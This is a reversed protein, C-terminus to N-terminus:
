ILKCCKKFKAGSGCDCPDNRGLKSKADTDSLPLVQNTFAPMLIRVGSLDSPPYFPGTIGSQIDDHAQKVAHWLHDLSGMNESSVVSMTSDFDFVLPDDLLASYGVAGRSIVVSTGLHVRGSPSPRNDGFLQRVASEADSSITQSLRKVQKRALQIEKDSQMSERISDPPILWKLEVIDLRGDETDLIAVDVDGVLQGGGDFLDQNTAVAYGHRRFAESLQEALPHKKHPIVTAGYRGPDSVALNRFFCAEWNASEVMFPACLLSTSSPLPCLPRAIIDPHTADPRFVWDALVTSAVRAPVGSHDSVISALESLGFSLLLSLLPFKPSSLNEHQEAELSHRALFGHLATLTQLEIWVQYAEGITYSGCSVERPIISEPTKALVLSKVSDHAQRTTREVPWLISTPGSGAPLGASFWSAEIYTAAGSSKVAYGLADEAARVHIIRNLFSARALDLSPYDFRVTRGQIDAKLYGQYMQPFAVAAAYYRASFALGHEVDALLRDEGEQDLHLAGPSTSAECIKPVIVDLSEKISTPVIM